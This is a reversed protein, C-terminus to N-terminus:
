VFRSWCIILKTKMPSAKLNKSSIRHLCKLYTSFFKKFWGLSYCLLLVSKWNPNAWIGQVVNIERKQLGRLQFVRFNVQCASLNVGKALCLLCEQACYTVQTSWLQKSGEGWSHEVVGAAWMPLSVVFEPKVGGLWLTVSVVYLELGADEATM